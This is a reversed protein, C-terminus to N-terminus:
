NGGSQSMLRVPLKRGFVSQGRGGRIAGGVSSRLCTADAGSCAPFKPGEAEPESGAQDRRLLPFGVPDPGALNQILHLHPCTAM